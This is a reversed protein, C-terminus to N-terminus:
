KRKILNIVIEVNPNKVCFMCLTYITIGIVVGLILKYYNAICLSDVFYMPLCMIVCSLVVYMTERDILNFAFYRRGIMYMSITVVTEAILTAIAAGDQAMQPILCLNLIFNVLAGIGTAMVVISVRGQAYLISTGMLNSLAIVFVIPSIIQLTRVSPTFLEGCFVSILYPAVVILGFTMPLTITIIFSKAKKVVSNFAEMNGSYYYSSLRPLLVTGLSLSVCLLMKALRNATSYYGVSANDALIGLMVSDLNVYISIIINLVFVKLAPSIHKKLDLEKWKIKSYSIIRQLQIFNLLYNGVESAITVGAYWYLDDKNKVCTFLMIICFLKVVLSRITIFKFCETAEFFWNVGLANLLLQLSLLLFLKVDTIQNVTFSLVFVIVYGLSTLLLHLLLIEVTAKDRNVVDDKYKAIERVAYLPIGLAALLMVYNLISIYFQVIGIGDAMIVRTIYPFTIIPFIILSLQHILNVALNIKISKAM